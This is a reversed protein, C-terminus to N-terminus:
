TPEEPSALARSAAVKSWKALEQAQPNHAPDALVRNACSLPHDPGEWPWEDGPLMHEATSRVVERKTLASVTGLSISYGINASEDGHEALQAALDDRTWDACRSLSALAAQANACREWPGGIRKGSPMHTICFHGFYRQDPTVALGPAKPHTLGEVDGIPKDAPSAIAVKVIIWESKSM